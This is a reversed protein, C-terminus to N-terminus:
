VTQLLNQILDNLLSIKQDNGVTLFAEQLFAIFHILLFLGGLQVNVERFCEEVLCVYSGNVNPTTLCM